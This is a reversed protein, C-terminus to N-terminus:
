DRAGPRAPMFSVSAVTGIGEEGPELKFSGRLDSVVLTQVISLGLNADKQPDFGEPLGVGDDAVEIRVMPAVRRAAEGEREGIDSEIHARIVIKGKTRGM